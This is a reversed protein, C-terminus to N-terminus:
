GSTPERIKGCPKIVGKKDAEGKVGRCMRDEESGGHNLNELNALSAPKTGQTIQTLRVLPTNGIADLITNHVETPFLCEKRSSVANAHNIQIIAERALRRQSLPHAM